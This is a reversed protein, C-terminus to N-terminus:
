NGKSFHDIIGELQEAGMRKSKIVKNKDLLYIVPYSYIDYRQKLDYLHVGDYVNVWNLKNDRIFKKWKSVNHHAYVAYVEINKGDAKMKDYEKKLVPIEKQCHGCDVDYFIVITFDAKVKNLPMYAKEIKKLNAYYAKTLNDSNTITDMGLEQIVQSGLTDVMNMEPLAKGVLLPELLEGRTIIKKNQADDYWNAKNTKYYKNVLDVFVADHGIIKSRDITYTLFFGMYKYMEECGQTQKMLWDCTKILSDPDQLVLKEFYNKLRYYYIKNTNLTGVSNLPIGTWYSRVYYNYEWISDKRGNAALPIEPAKAVESQMRIIESLYSKPHDKLYSAQYNKIAEFHIAREKALLLTSDKDKRLRLEKEYDFLKKNHDSMFLVFNRFDENLPSHGVKLGAYLSVTDTALSFTQNSDVLFDLGLMSRNQKVLFYIGKELPQGGKFVFHGKKVLATDVAVHSEWRYKFLYCVSDKLGKINFNIEYKNQAQLGAALFLLICILKKM